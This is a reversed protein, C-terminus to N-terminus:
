KNELVTYRGSFNDFVLKDRNSKYWAKIQQNDGRYDIYPIVRLRGTNVADPYANSFDYADPLRDILWGLADISGQQTAIRALEYKTFRNPESVQDGIQTRNTRRELRWIRDITNTLDYDPLAQLMELLELPQKANVTLEHLKPYLKPEKIEVAANFWAKDLEGEAKLVKDVIVPKVSECWGNRVVLGIADPNTSLNEIIRQKLTQDDLNLAVLRKKAAVFLRTDMAYETVVLDVHVAPVAQMKAILPERPGDVEWMQEAKVRLARVYDISDKRSPNDPLKIANIQTTLDREREQRAAEIQRELERQEKAKKLAADLEANAAEANSEADQELARVLAKNEEETLADLRGEDIKRQIQRWLAQDKLAQDITDAEVQAGNPQAPDPSDAPPESSTDQAVAPIPLCAIVLLIIMPLRRNKM